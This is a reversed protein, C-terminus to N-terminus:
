CELTAVKAVDFASVPQGLPLSLSALVRTTTSNLAVDLVGVLPQQELEVAAEPV